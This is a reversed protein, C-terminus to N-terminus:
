MGAARVPLTSPLFIMSETKNNSPFSGWFSDFCYTAAISLRKVKDLTREPALSIFTAMQPVALALHPQGGFSYLFIKSSHKLEKYQILSLSLKWIWRHTSLLTTVMTVVMCVGSSVTEQILFFGLTFATLLTLRSWIQPSFKALIISIGFPHPADVSVVLQNGVVAMLQTTLPDPHGEHQM